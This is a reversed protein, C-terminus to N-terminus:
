KHFKHPKACKETDDYLWKNPNKQRKEDIDLKIKKYKSNKHVKMVSISFQVLWDMKFYLGVFFWEDNKSDVRIRM